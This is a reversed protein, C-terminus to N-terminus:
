LTSRWGCHPLHGGRRGPERRLSPANEFSLSHSVTLGAISNPIPKARLSQAGVGARANWHGSQRARAGSQADEEDM